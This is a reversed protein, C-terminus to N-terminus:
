APCSRQPYKGGGEHRPWALFGDAVRGKRNIECTRLFKSSFNVFYAQKGFERMYTVRKWPGTLKESELICTHCPGYTSRTNGHGDTVCMLFRKLGPVYPATVIGMQENWELLPKIMGFDHIWIPKGDADHGAFFEYAKPDNITEISPTLRLLYVQDASSWTNCAEPRVAGQALFYAKGDPSHETNKGFDVFHPAGIKVKIGPTGPNKATWKEYEPTKRWLKVPRDILIQTM